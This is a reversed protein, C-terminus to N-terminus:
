GLIGWKELFMKLEKETSQNHKIRSNSFELAKTPCREVCLPTGECLDCILLKSIENLRIANYLCADICVECNVCVEYDVTIVGNNARKLAANPCASIPPCEECQRCFIPFDFGYKDQKIVIIRSISPRFQGSHHFSCVLECIRCGSCKEVNVFLRKLNVAM